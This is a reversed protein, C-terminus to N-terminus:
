QKASSDRKVAYFEPMHVCLGGRATTKSYGAILQDKYHDISFDFWDATGTDSLELDSEDM